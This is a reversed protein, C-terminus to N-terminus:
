DTLQLHDSHNPILDWIVVDTHSCRHLPSSNNSARSFFHDVRVKVKHKEFVVSCTLTVLKRGQDWSASLMWVPTNRALQKVTNDVTERYPHLSNEGKELTAQTIWWIAFVGTELTELWVAGSNPLSLFLFHILLQKGLRCAAWLASGGPAAGDQKVYHLRCAGAVIATADSHGRSSAWSRDALQLLLTDHWPFLAQRGTALDDGVTQFAPFCSKWKDKFPLAIHAAYSLGPGLLARELPDAVDTVLRSSIATSM